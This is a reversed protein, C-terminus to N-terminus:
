TNSQTINTKSNQKMPMTPRSSDNMNSPLEPPTGDNEGSPIQPATQVSDTENGTQKNRQGKQKMNGNFSKGGDQMMQMPNGNKNPNSQVKNGNIRTYILFGAATVIAGVLLGIVFILIKEKM